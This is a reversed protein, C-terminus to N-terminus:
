PSSGEFLDEMPRAGHLVRYLLIGSTQPKYYLVYRGHVQRRIAPSLHEVSEGMEPNKAILRLLRDVSDLWREAAIVDENAIYIAIEALDRRSEVSRVIRAM